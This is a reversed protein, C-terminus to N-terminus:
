GTPLQEHVCKLGFPCVICEIRLASAICSLFACRRVIDQGTFDPVQHARLARFPNENLVLGMQLLGAGAEKIRCISSRLRGRAVREVAKCLCSEQHM